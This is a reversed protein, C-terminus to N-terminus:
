KGIDVLILPLDNATNIQRKRSSTEMIENPPGAGEIVALSLRSSNEPPQHFGLIDGARVRLPLNPLYEYVNLFGTRSPQESSDTKHVIDYTDGSNLRLIQLEPYETREIAAGLNRAAFTWKTLLGDQTINMAPIIRQQGNSMLLLLWFFLRNLSHTQM